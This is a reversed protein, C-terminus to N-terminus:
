EGGNAQPTESELVKVMREGENTLVFFDRSDQRVYDNSRLSRLAENPASGEFTKRGARVFPFDQEAVRVLRIEGRLGAAYRLLEEELKSELRKMNRVGVGM